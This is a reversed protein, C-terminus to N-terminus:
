EDDLNTIIALFAEDLITTKHLTAKVEKRVKLEYYGTRENLIFKSGRPIVIGNKFTFTMEIRIKKM